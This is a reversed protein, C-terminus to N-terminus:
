EELNKTARWVFQEIRKQDKQDLIVFRQGSYMKNLDVWLVEALAVIPSADGELWFMLLIFDNVKVPSDIEIGFGGAGISIKGRKTPYRGIGVDPNGAVEQWEAVITDLAESKRNFSVQTTLEIRQYQRQYSLKLHGVLQVWLKRLRPQALILGDGVIGTGFVESSIRVPNGVTFDYGDLAEEDYALSLELACESCRDIVASLSKEDNGGELPVRVYAVQGSQLYKQYPFQNQHGQAM